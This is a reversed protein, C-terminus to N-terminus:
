TARTNWKIGSDLGGISVDPRGVAVESVTRVPSGPAICSGTEAPFTGHADVPRMGAVRCLEDTQSNKQAGTEAEVEIPNSAPAAALVGFSIRVPAAGESAAGIREGV